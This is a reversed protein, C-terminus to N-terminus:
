RSWTAARAFRLEGKKPQHNGRGKPPAPRAVQSLHDPEFSPILSPHISMFYPFSNTPMVNQSSICLQAGLSTSPLQLLFGQIPRKPCQIATRPSNDNRGKIQWLPLRVLIQPLRKLGAQISLKLTRQPKM